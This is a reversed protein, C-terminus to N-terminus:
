DNTVVFASGIMIILVGPIIYGAPQQALFIWALLAAVPTEFLVLMSVITPSEHELVKNFMTHGLIQAGIVLGFVLLWEHLSFHFFNTTGSAIVAVLTTLATFSYCVATHLSTDITERVKASISVYIAATIASLLAVLDGQFARFSHQFDIGGIIAVGIVAIVMGLWSRTKIQHGGLRAILAAFIPQTAALATGTAVSTWRMAAFFGLFHIGLFVGSLASRRLLALVHSRQHVAVVKKYSRIAFPLTLLTGIINRWFAVLAIPMTGAALLPGSTGLGFVGIALRILNSRRPRATHSRSSPSNHTTM